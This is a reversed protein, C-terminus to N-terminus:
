TGGPGPKELLERIVALLRAREVPKTLYRSCGAELCRERDGQLAHATLAIVPLDMGLERLTRTAEYGDMDPMAMDMLVLDFPERRLREVALRGNEVVVVEAGAKRLILAILRQNDPGDEALLIRAALPEAAAACARRGAAAVDDPSPAVSGGAGARPAHCSFTFTSGVGAESEVTCDGGLLRALRRTIALGLGTGGYRRTTSADAQEFPRFLGALKEQPIGIGTDRVRVVLMEREYRTEVRVGGESTFKLANGLLNTLAQRIRTPDSILRAPLDPPFVLDLSLGKERAQISFLGSAADIVVRPDLPIREVDLQGAEIKSLDLIDSLAELLYAGNRSVVQLKERVDPSLSDRSDLLLDTYGLIANMPTRLEHSMNALFDTKAHNAAEAADRAQRLTDVLRLNEASLALLRGVALVTRIQVPGPRRGSTQVALVGVARSGAFLPVYVCFGRRRRRVAPPNAVVRIWRARLVQQAVRTDGLEPCGDRMWEVRERALEGTEDARLFVVGEAEILTGLLELAFEIGRVDSASDTVEGISSVADLSFEHERSQRRFRRRLSELGLAYHAGAVLLPVVPDLLIGTRAVLVLPAVLLTGGVALLGWLRLLSRTTRALAFVALAVLAALAIQSGSSAPALRRQGAHEALLTRLALAQIFVGPTASSLPTNWLDRFEVATAGVIVIRGEVDRPDFHGEVLDSISIVPFMPAARRYDVAFTGPALRPQRELAIAFLAEWLSPMAEGGISTSRPVRRLIGDPDIPVSVSGIAAAGRALTPIPRSIIEIEGGGELQERQRFTALAVLGSSRIARGFAADEEPAAPTSFDIDFGIARAGAADLRALARAYRDRPWPWEPSSRLSRADVAVVSVDPLGAAPAPPWATSAQVLLDAIPRQIAALGGTEIVAAALATVAAPVLAGQIIGRVGVPVVDPPRRPLRLRARISARAGAGHGSRRM